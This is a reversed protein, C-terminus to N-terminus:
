APEFGAGGVLVPEKSSPVPSGPPAQESAEALEGIQDWAAEASPAEIVDGDGEIEVREFFAQNFTRRTSSDAERYARAVHTLLTLAEAGARRVLRAEGEAEAIDREANALESGIRKQERELQELPVAVPSALHSRVLITQEAQLRDRRKRARRAKKERQAHLKDIAPLLWERVRDAADPALQVRDWHGDIAREIREALIYRQRCGNRKQHRGVCFFYLYTGKAKTLCLRSGCACYVTGKLYHRHKRDKEGSSNHAALVEQVQEFLQRSVLPEHRGPYQVGRYRVMGVYYPNALMSAIYSRSPPQSPWRRSPKTRLGRATLDDLLTDLTHRGTAYAAFAERILPAREPDVEVTRIERGDEVRRVNLYGLPARGITGGLKAKETSKTIVENALNASYFEAISAMIGHLLQGQPTEDINETCSILQAGAAQIDAMILADDRRKRALRDLKHVIVYDPPNTKLAERLQQLAPRDATRGSEAIDIFPREYVAELQAARRETAHRQAEISFGKESEARRVQGESSVRIYAWARKM